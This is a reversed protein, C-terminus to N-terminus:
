HLLQHHYYHQCHTQLRSFTRPEFGGWLNNLFLRSDWLTERGSGPARSCRDVPMPTMQRCSHALHLLVPRMHAADTGAACLAMKAPPRRRLSCRHAQTSQELHARKQQGVGSIAFPAAFAHFPSRSRRADAARPAAGAAFETQLQQRAETMLTASERSRQSEESWKTPLMQCSYAVM